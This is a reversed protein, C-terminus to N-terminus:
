IPHGWWFEASSSAFLNYSGSSISSMLSVLGELCLLVLACLFECFTPLVCLAQPLRLRIPNWHKSPFIVCAGMGLGSPIELQYKSLFSHTYLACKLAPEVRLLLYGLVVVVVILEVSHKYDEWIAKNPYKQDEQGKAQIHHNRIKHKILKM